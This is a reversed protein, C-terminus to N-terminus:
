IAMGWKEKNENNKWVELYDLQGIIESMVLFFQQDYIRGYYQEAIEGGTRAGQDILTM